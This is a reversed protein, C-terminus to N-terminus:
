YGAAGATKMDSRRKNRNTLWYRGVKRIKQTVTELFTSIQQHTLQAKYFDNRMKGRKYNFEAKAMDETYIHMNFEGCYRKNQVLFVTENSDM